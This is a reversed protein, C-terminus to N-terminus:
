GFASQSHDANWILDPVTARLNATRTKSLITAPNLAKVLSSRLASLFVNSGTTKGDRDRRPRAARGPMTGLCRVMNGTSLKRRDRDLFRLTNSDSECKNFQM